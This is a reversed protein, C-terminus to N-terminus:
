NKNFLYAKINNLSLDLSAVVGNYKVEKLPYYCYCPDRKAQKETLHVYNVFLTDDPGYEYDLYYTKINEDGSIFGINRTTQIGLDYAQVGAENVARTFDTVYKKINNEYYYMRMNNLVSDPLRAGNSKIVFFISHPPLYPGNFDKNCTISLASWLFILFLSRKM